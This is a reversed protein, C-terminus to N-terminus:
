RYGRAFFVIPNHTAPMSEKRRALPWPNGALWQTQNGQALTPLAQGCHRAWDRASSGPLQRCCPNPDVNDATSGMLKRPTYVEYTWKRAMELEARSPLRGLTSNALEFRTEREM